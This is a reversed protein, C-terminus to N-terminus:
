TESQVFNMIYYATIAGCIQFLMFYGIFAPDIGTFTDSFVRALTVAPNAFATSSTFWIAATIYLGVAPAIILTNFKKTGLITILLGFTAVLEGIYINLGGRDTDSISLIDLGFMSNALLAGLIGGILQSVIYCISDKASIERQLYMVITVAPNFQAGSVSIFIWILATLGAGTAVSHALLISLEDSSLNSAMIGSGIIVTVLFLTGILEALNRRILSKDM